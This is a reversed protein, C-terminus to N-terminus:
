NATRATSRATPLPRGYEMGTHDASSPLPLNRFTNYPNWGPFESKRVAKTIQALRLDRSITSIAIASEGWGLLFIRAGRTLRHPVTVAVM